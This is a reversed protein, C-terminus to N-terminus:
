KTDPKLKKAILPLLTLNKMEYTACTADRYSETAKTTSGNTQILTIEDVTTCGGARKSRYFALLRDLGAVEADTLTATGLPIRQSVERQKKTENWRQEVRTVKATTTAARQFDFQYTYFHFCGGSTFTVHLTDGPPLQQFSIPTGAFASAASLLLTLITRKM